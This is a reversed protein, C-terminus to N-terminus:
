VQLTPEIIVDNSMVDNVITWGLSL